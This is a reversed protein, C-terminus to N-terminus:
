FNKMFMKRKNKLIKDILQLEDALKTNNKKCRNQLSQLLENFDNLAFEDGGDPFIDNYARKLIDADEASLGDLTKALEADPLAEKLQNVFEEPNKTTKSIMINRFHNVLESISNIISVIFFM